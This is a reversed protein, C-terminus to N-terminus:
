KKSYTSRYTPTSHWCLWQGPCYSQLHRRDRGTQFFWSVYYLLHVRMRKSYDWARPRYDCLRVLSCVLDSKFFLHVPHIILYCQATAFMNAGLSACSPLFCMSCCPTDHTWRAINSWGDRVWGWRKGSLLWFEMWFAASACWIDLLVPQAAFSDLVFNLVKRQGYVHDHVTDELWVPLVAAGTFTKDLPGSTCTSFIFGAWKEEWCDPSLCCHRIKDCSGQVSSQRYNSVVWASCCHLLLVNGENCLWHM